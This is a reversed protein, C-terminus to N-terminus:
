NENCVREYAVRVLGTHASPSYYGAYNLIYLAGDPGFRLNIPNKFALGPFAERSQIVKEQNGDLTLMKVWSKMFDAVFWKGDYTAPFKIPSQLSDDYRYIPGTMAAASKSEYSYSAPFTPPLRKVGTNWKSNNIPTEPNQGSYTMPANYGIFYPYGAFVPHHVINMEDHNSGPNNDGWTLIRKVPDVTISFNSRHGKSYIEPLIKAPNRYEQALQKEGM